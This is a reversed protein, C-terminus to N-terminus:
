QPHMHHGHSYLAWVGLHPKISSACVLYEYVGLPTMLSGLRVPAQCLWIGIEAKTCVSGLFVLSLQTKDQLDQKLDEQLIYMESVYM